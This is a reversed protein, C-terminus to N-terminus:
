PKRVRYFFPGSNLPPKDQADVIDVFTDAFTSQVAEGVFNDELNDWNVLDKSRDISYIIGDQSSFTFTVSPANIDSDVSLIKFNFDSVPVIPYAGASLSQIINLPLVETWVTVDDLDGKFSAGFNSSNGILMNGSGNPAEQSYPGGELAGNLYINATNTTGDYTWAAHVWQDAALVTTAGFDSGWHATNLKGGGRLGNHIGQTTQGFIFGDGTVGIATPKLWCSLTYSGEDVAPNDSIELDVDLGAVNIYGDSGVSFRGATTPTAGPAGPIGSVVVNNNITGDFGNATRDAVTTGDSNEFDFYLLPPAIAPLSSGLFPDSGALLEQSDSYTDDDTDKKNPNTGTNNADVFAGSNTEVKDSLGDGDSDASFPSTGTNTVDVYIGTNTEVGDLLGDGDTDPNLPDTGTDTAASVFTGSGSEVNDLAGDQDTDNSSPNMFRNYEDENTVLDADLDDGSDDVNENTGYKIEWYDPMIDPDSNALTRVSLNDLYSTRAGERNHIVIRNMNVPDATVTGTVVKTRVPNGSPKIETAILTLQTGNDIVQFEFSSGATIAGFAATTNQVVIIGGRGQLTLAGTAGSITFEVGSKTEGCCNGTDVVGDSQTLIQLFDDGNVFTWEGCIALGTVSPDYGLRSVMYGRGVIEVRGNAETVSPTGGPSSANISWFAANFTNDEFDDVLPLDGGGPFSNIDTPITLFTLVEDGDGYGDLDSDVVLPNTGTDNADVFTGSNSEVKDDLGDGDTDAKSPNTVPRPAIPNLEEFDNLGDSDTDVLMPNTGTQCIEDIDSITDGDFDGTGAGPGVGPTGTLDGLNSTYRRESGDFLGDTDSDESAAKIPSAGKALDTIVAQPLAMPWVAVDDLDGKFHLDGANAANSGNRCGIVLAGSGVPPNQTFTGDLEGNRYIKATDTLGDYVWAAHVWEGATLTTTGLFDSGWHATNLRGGRVGNHVGNVMQGFIFGDALTTPKLWCSLTYSGQNADRIDAAMDIGDVRLYGTGGDSFRGVGDASSGGPAGVGGTIVSVTGVISGDKANSTGDLTDGEFDFYVLPEPIGPLSNADTPDSGEAVELGDVFSDNDTDAVLPHTHTDNPDLNNVDYVGTNTEVGDLLGDDDTDAKLPNTGTANADVFNGDNSEVGDKLGDDDTDDDIPSTGVTRIEDFDSLGDGDYDGTGPGTGSPVGGVLDALNGVLGREQGDFLGDSDSDESSAGVPSAGNSLDRIQQDTLVENWVAVDDMGGTFPETGGNRAGVILNGTTNNPAAQDLFEGDKKGNLFIRGDRESADYTYVAHVWTADALVTTGSYDSGWHGSRLKKGDFIGCHIGEVTQGIFWQEDTVVTPKIWCAITYDGGNPSAVGNLTNMLLGTVNLRGGTFGVGEGASAGFPAGTATDLDVNGVVAGNFGSASRDTSGSANSDGEFDFYVKPAPIQANATAHCIFAGCLATLFFQRCKAFQLMKM